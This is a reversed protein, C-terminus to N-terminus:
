ISSISHARVQGTRRRGREDRRVAGVWSSSRRPLQAAHLVNARLRSLKAACRPALLPTATLLLSCPLIIFPTLGGEGERSDIRM